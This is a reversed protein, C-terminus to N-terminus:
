KAKCIKNCIRETAVVTYFPLLSAALIVAKKKSFNVSLLFIASVFLFIPVLIASYGYASLLVNGIEFFVLLNNTIGYNLFQVMISITFFAALFLLVIGGFIISKESQKM